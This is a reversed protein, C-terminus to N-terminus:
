FSEREHNSTNKHLDSAVIIPDDANHGSKPRSGLITQPCLEYLRVREQGKGSCWEGEQFVLYHTHTFPSPQICGSRSVLVCGLVAFYM